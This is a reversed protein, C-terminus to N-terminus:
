SLDNIYTKKCILEDLIYRFLMVLYTNNNNNNYPYGQIYELKNLCIIQSKHIKNNIVSKTHPLECSM